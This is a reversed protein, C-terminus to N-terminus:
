KKDRKIVVSGKAGAKKVQQTLEILPDNDDTGALEETTLGLIKMQRTIADQTDKLLKFVPHAEFAESGYRNVTALFPDDLSDLCEIVRDLALLEAALSRVQPALSANYKGTDKLSKVIEKEYDNVKKTM